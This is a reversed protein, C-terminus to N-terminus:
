APDLNKRISAVGDFPQNLVWILLVTKWNSPLLHDAKDVECPLHWAFTTASSLIWM